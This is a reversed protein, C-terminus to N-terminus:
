YIAAAPIRREPSDLWSGPTVFGEEAACMGMQPTSLAPPGSGLAPSCIHGSSSTPSLASGLGWACCSSSFQQSRSVLLQKFESLPMTDIFQGPNKRGRRGGKSLLFYASSSNFGPSLKLPLAVLHPPPEPTELAAKEGSAEISPFSTGVNLIDTRVERWAGRLM